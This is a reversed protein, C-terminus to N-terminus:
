LLWVFVHFAYVCVVDNASRMFVSVFASPVRVVCSFFRCCKVCFARLAVCVGVHAFVYM